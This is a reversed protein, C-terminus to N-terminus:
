FLKGKTQAFKYPDKANKNLNCEPCSIVLNEVIHKGGKSLPEYHDIHYSDECDCNCWYCIKAQSEAWRKVEAFSNGDKKNARRKSDYNFSIFKRKDPNNKVWEKAMAKKKDANKIHYKVDYDKKAQTKSRASMCEVCSNGIVYRLTNNCNKCNGGHYTKQGIAIADLRTQLARM